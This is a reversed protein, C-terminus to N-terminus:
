DEDGRACEESQAVAGQFATDVLEIMQLELSESAETGLDLDCRYQWESLLPKIGSKITEVTNNAVAKRDREKHFEESFDALIKEAAELDLNVAESDDVAQKKQAVMAKPLLQDFFRNQNERAWNLLSWAGLSPADKAEAGRHALNEYVWLTDRVLNPQGSFDEPALDVFEVAENSDAGKRGKDTTSLPPFQESLARWSAENAEAKSLGEARFQKRREDRWLSAEEWRGERRLRDTAAIRSEEM